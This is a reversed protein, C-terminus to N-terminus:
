LRFEKTETELKDNVLEILEVGLKVGPRLLMMRPNQPGSSGGGVGTCSGPNLLIKGDKKVAEQQHTHGHLLVECELKESISVLTPPHGRPSIGTGHYVGFGIGDREFTASNQLQFRDCNGMVGILEGYEELEEYVERTEFDGCHVTLDAQEVLEIFKGPIKQARVPVHSDSIVAIM